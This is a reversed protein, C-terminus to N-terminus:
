SVGGADLARITPCPYTGDTRVAKFFTSVTDRDTM